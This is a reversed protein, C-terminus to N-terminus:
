RQTMETLEHSLYRASLDAPMDPSAGCAGRAGVLQIGSEKDIEVSVPPLKRLLEQIEVARRIVQEATTENIKM